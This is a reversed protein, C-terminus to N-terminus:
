FLFYIQKLQIKSTEEEIRIEIGPVYFIIIEYMVSIRGILNEITGRKISKQSLSVIWFKIPALNDVRPSGIVRRTSVRTPSTVIVFNYMKFDYVAM